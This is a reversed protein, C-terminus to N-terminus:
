SPSGKGFCIVKPMLENVVSVVGFVVAWRWPKIEVKYLERGAVARFNDFGVDYDDARSTATSHTGFNECFSPLLHEDHVLPVVKRWRLERHILVRAEGAEELVLPKDAAVVVGNGRNRPAAPATASRDVPGCAQLRLVKDSPFPGTLAQREELSCLELLAEVSDALKHDTRPGAAM